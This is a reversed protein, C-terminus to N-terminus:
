DVIGPLASEAENGIRRLYDRELKQMDVGRAAENFARQLALGEPTRKFCIHVPRERFLDDNVAIRARDADTFHKSALLRQLVRREIVIAPFRRILLKRLNTEDNVGEEVAIRHQRVLADFREGNAYGAVTGIRYNELEAMDRVEIPTDKLYALVTLTNGLPVSFHCLKEREPTRWVPLFGAYRADHLGLEMARKWPFYDVVAERGLKAFVPQMMAPSLGHEPLSPSAFPPWEEAALRLPATAQASLCCALCFGLAAPKLLAM